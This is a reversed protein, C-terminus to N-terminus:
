RAKEASRLVYSIVEAVAQYLEVPIEDDIEVTSLAEALAPNEEVMVDNEEAVKIIKEALAGRGKATVVPADAGDYQLAVAKKHEDTM